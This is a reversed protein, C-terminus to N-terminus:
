LIVKQFWKSFAEGEHLAWQAISEVIAEERREEPPYIWIWWFPPRYGKMAKNVLGRKCLAHCTEHILTKFAQSDDHRVVIAKDAEQIYCGQWRDELIGFEKLVEHDESGADVVKIDIGVKEEIFEKWRQYAPKPSM